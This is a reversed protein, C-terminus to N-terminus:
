CKIQIENVNVDWYYRYIGGAIVNLFKTNQCLKYKHKAHNKSYIWIIQGSIFQWSFMEDIDNGKTILVFSDTEFSSWFAM